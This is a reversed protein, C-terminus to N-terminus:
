SELRKGWVKYVAESLTPGVRRRVPQRRLKEHIMKKKLDDSDLGEYAEYLAAPTHWQEQIALAKDLSVGRISMLMKIFVERVTLMGSKSLGAQYSDFDVGVPETVSARAREMSTRFTSVHPYAVVLSRSSYWKQLQKTMAALFGVSEEPQLTRKLFFGDVVITQSLATQVAKEYTKRDWNGAEEVLYIVHACTSRHLRAKQERFRGDKISAVLDDMRKREVVFDTVAVWVM